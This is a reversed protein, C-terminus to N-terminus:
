MLNSLWKVYSYLVVALTIMRMNVEYAREVGNRIATVNKKIAEVEDLKDKPIRGKIFDFNVKKLEEELTYHFLFGKNISEILGNIHSTHVENVMGVFNFTFEKNRLITRFFENLKENYALKEERTRLKPLANFVEVAEKIFHNQWECIGDAFQINKDLASPMETLIQNARVLSPPEHLPNKEAALKAVLELTPQVLFLAIEMKNKDEETVFFASLHEMLKQESIPYPVKQKIDRILQVSEVDAARLTLHSLNHIYLLM